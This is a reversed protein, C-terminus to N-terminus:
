PLSHLSPSPSANADHLCCRRKAHPLVHADALLLHTEGLSDFLNEAGISEPDRFYDLPQRSDDVFELIQVARM